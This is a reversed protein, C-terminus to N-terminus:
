NDIALTYAGISGQSIRVFYTGAAPVSFTLTGPGTSSAVSTGSSNEVRIAVNSGTTVARLALPGFVTFSFYDVDGSFQLAGNVVPGAVLVSTAAARTDGHDDLGNDTARLAWSALSSSTSARTCFFLTETNPAKFHLAESDTSSIFTATSTLVFLVVDTTTTEEFTYTHMAQVSVALCDTDGAYDFAGSVSSGVALTAPNGDRSDAHDDVGVDTVTLTWSALNSSTYASTCLFLTEATSTEFRLSESDTRSIFTGTATYVTLYVDTPTTEAFTYIRDAQVPVAVCDPDGPYQFAGSLSATPTLTVPNDARSDAHDDVGLDTVTLAWNALNSSTYASTCLFLTETASTEFRLLESDTRSIFTGTATYVTLYVDTGTTEAFTYIRNQQVPVVVCESDGPYQFAGTVTAGPAAVPVLTVSAEARSDAYDDVGHDTVRLTWSALNSSTYARTCLFLTEATSTEFRLSESDTTSIFTGTATFVTLYVDATTTEEFVYIHNAQVPVALCDTDGPFNFAGTVSSGPMLTAPNASRSDAHDDASLTVAITTAGTTAATPGRVQLYYVGANALKRHVRNVQNTAVATVGDAEYLSLLANIPGSEEALLVAGADATFTVWDVDGAPEFTHSQPVGSVIPKALAPCEDPEYSDGTAHQTACTPAPILECGNAGEQYGANCGCSAGADAGALCVNRNLETCPNPDCVDNPVCAGNQENFGANCGCVAAGNVDSCVGRNPMTCPNPSCADNVVCTGGQDRFGSNCGCVAVGSQETCVGRNPQTCPNPNCAQQPVCQGAADLRYGTDCTCVVLGSQVSCQSRNTEMCPNPTCSAPRVCTGAGDDIFGSECQCIATTGSAVCVGRNPQTCPNNACPNESVCGGMGDDRLGVDCACQVAGNVASCVSKGPTTCPNPTCSQARICRGANDEVFGSDCRCVATEGSASCVTRNTETCPNAACPGPRVCVGAVENFGERCSCRALGDVATCVSRDGDCLNPSCVDVPPTVPPCAALLFLPALLRLTKM